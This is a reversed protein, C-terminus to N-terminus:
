FSEKVASRKVLSLGKKICVTLALAGLLGLASFKIWNKMEDEM